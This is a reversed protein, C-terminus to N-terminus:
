GKRIMLSFLSVFGFNPTLVALKQTLNQGNPQPEFRKKLRIKMYTNEGFGGVLFLAQLIILM